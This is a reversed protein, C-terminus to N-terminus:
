RHHEEFEYGYDLNRLPTPSLKYTSERLFDMMEAPQDKFQAIDEPPIPKGVVVDVNDGVRKRFENILLAMRLTAHLRSAKQFLRGNAGDFFIPVVTAGSKAVLKATFTRWAPDMPHAKRSVATSVTGGPFIGICGDNRLYELATKRTDLNVRMAEKTEDFSIPLIVKDLDRAKKFVRNALIKFDGRTQSLIHGMMMGDLIGYPHNATVIVPGTKPINDLSGGALNLGLEYREVMVEWFDRGAAVEADYGKVRKILRPRGTLNEVARIFARGSKSKASSAYSIDRAVQRQLGM